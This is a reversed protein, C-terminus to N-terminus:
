HVPEADPRPSVQLRLGEGNQLLVEALGTRVEVCNRAPDVASRDARVADALRDPSFRREEPIQNLQILHPSLQLENELPEASAMPRPREANRRKPIWRVM